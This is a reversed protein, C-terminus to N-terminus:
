EGQLQWSRDHSVAPFCPKTQAYHVGWALTLLTWESPQDGALRAWVRAFEPETESWSRGPALTKAWTRVAIGSFRYLAYDNTLDAVTAGATWPGIRPVTQVEAVLDIPDLETWKSGFELIAEAAARLPQRKFALGLRRFEADTLDLVALPAPFLWAVGNPTAIRTGHAECFTRYRRRAHSARIVQRLAM